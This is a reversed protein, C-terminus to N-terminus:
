RSTLARYLKQGARGDVKLGNKRQFDEIAGRTGDGILGDVAGIDYGRAILAAQIERAQRRTIGADDTPWPTAFATGKNPNKLNESLWAIGLAYNESANYSYFADFNKGVLFAPGNAGAPLLLGLSPANTPLPAGSALTIGQARWYNVGKKNSRGSVGTYGHPLRVEYGWAEGTRYGRQKLFHATSALADPVSGVLDRRGDGDFDQALALYTSPMFQTQGFAGAWSGKAQERTIDGKAMINLLAAFEGRFYSQRRDFCSLTALSDVLDKKGLTQGFNSEVGWVGLLHYPDIGYRRAVADVTSKHRAYANLGDAVREDDVLVSLYDWAAKKFEPQNNLSKIVSDDYRANQALLTSAVPAFTRSKALESICANLTSQNAHAMGSLAVLFLLKKM